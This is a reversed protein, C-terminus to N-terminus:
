APTFKKDEEDTNAVYVNGVQDVVGRPLDSVFDGNQNSGFAALFTGTSSFVRV